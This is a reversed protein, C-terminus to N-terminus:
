LLHSRGSQTPEPLPSKLANFQGQVKVWRRRSDGPQNRRTARHSCCAPLLEDRMRGNFREALGNQTSKGARHLAM